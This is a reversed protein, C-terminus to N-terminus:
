VAVAGIRGFAVPVIELVAVTVAGAVTVSLMGPLLLAVSLLVTRAPCLSRWIVFVSPRVLATGPVFRDYVIVTVFAPGEVAVPAATASVSLAVQNLTEPALQVHAIVAPAPLQPAAEPVPLKLEVTVRWGEAVAVYVIVAGIREPAVPVIALVAVTLAGDPLVSGFGAFLLAVSAFVTSAGDASRDIM